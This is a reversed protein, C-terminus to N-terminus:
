HVSRYHLSIFLRGLVDTRDPDQHSNRNYTRTQFFKGSYVTIQIIDFADEINFILRDGWIIVDGVVNGPKTEKKENGFNVVAIPRKKVKSLGKGCLLVLKLSGFSRLKGILGRNRDFDSMKKALSAHLHNKQDLSVLMEIQGIVKTEKKYM